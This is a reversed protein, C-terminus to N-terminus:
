HAPLSSSRRTWPVPSTRAAWGWSARVASGAWDPSGTIAIPGARFPAPLLGRYAGQWTASQEAQARCGGQAARGERQAQLILTASRLVSAARM